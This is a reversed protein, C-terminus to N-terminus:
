RADRRGNSQRVTFGASLRFQCSFFQNARLWSGCLFSSSSKDFAREIGVQIVYYARHTSRPQVLCTLRM